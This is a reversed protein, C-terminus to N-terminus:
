ESYNFVSMLKKQYLFLAKVNSHYLTGTPVIIINGFILV